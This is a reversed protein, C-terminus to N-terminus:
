WIGFNAKEGNNKAELIAGEDQPLNKEYDWSPNWQSGSGSIKDIVHPIFSVINEDWSAEAHTKIDVSTGIM